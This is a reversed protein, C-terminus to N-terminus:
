FDSNTITLSHTHKYSSPFKKEQKSELIWNQEFVFNTIMTDTSNYVTVTDFIIPGRANSNGGLFSLFAIEKTEGIGIYQLSDIALVPNEFKLTIESNTNNSVNFIEDTNGECSIFFLATLLLTFLKM